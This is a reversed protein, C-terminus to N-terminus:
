KHLASPDSWLKLFAEDSFRPTWVEVFKDDREVSMSEVSIADFKSSKEGEIRVTETAYNRKESWSLNPLFYFKGEATQLVFDAEADLHPDNKDTPCEMGHSACAVGNLKGTITAAAAGFATLLAAIACTGILYRRMGVRCQTDSM